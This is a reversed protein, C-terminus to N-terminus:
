SISINSVSGDQRIRKFNGGSATGRGDTFQISDKFAEYGSKLMEFPIANKRYRFLLNGEIDYGDADHDILQQYAGVPLFTAKLAEADQPKMIRKLRYVKPEM